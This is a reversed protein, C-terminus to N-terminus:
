HLVATCAWCFSCCIRRGNPEPAGGRRRDVPALEVVLVTEVNGLEPVGNAIQEENHEAEVTEVAADLHAELRTEMDLENPNHDRAHARGHEVTRQLVHVLLAVLRGHDPGDQRPEVNDVAGLDLLERDSVCLGNCDRTERREAHQKGDHVRDVAERGDELEEESDESNNCAHPQALM